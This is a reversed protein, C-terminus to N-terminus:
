GEVLAVDADHLNKCIESRHSNPLQTLLLQQHLPRGKNSLRRHRVFERVLNVVRQLAQGIDEVQGRLSIMTFRCLDDSTLRKAIQFAQAGQYPFEKAQGM